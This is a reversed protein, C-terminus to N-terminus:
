WDNSLDDQAFDAAPPRLRPIQGGCKIWGRRMEGKQM